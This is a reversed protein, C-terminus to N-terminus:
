PIIRATISAIVSLSAIFMATLVGYYTLVDFLRRPTM